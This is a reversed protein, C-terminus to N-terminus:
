SKIMQSVRLQHLEEMKLWHYWKQMTDEWGEQLWAKECDVAILESVWWSNSAVMRGKSGIKKTMYKMVKMRQQRKM